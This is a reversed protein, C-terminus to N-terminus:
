GIGPGRSLMRQLESSGGHSQPTLRGIDNEDPSIRSKSTASTAIWAARGTVQYEAGQWVLSQGTRDRRKISMADVWKEDSEM